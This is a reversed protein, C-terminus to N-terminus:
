FPQGGPTILALLKEPAELDIIVGFSPKDATGGILKARCVGKKGTEPLAKMVHRYDDADERSLYGVQAGSQIVVKIAHADYPNDPEAILEVVFSVDDGRERRGQSLTRLASQRRSEGVVAIAYGLGSGLNLHTDDGIPLDALRTSAKPPRRWQRPAATSPPTPAPATTQARKWTTLAILHGLQARAEPSVEIELPSSKNTMHVVIASHNIQITLVKSWQCTVNRDGEFFLGKDTINVRGWDDDDGRKRPMTASEDFFCLDGSSMTRIVPLSEGRQILARYRELEIEAKTPTPASPSGKQQRFLAAQDPGLLADLKDGEIEPKTPMAPPSSVLTPGPDPQKSGLLARLIRRFM